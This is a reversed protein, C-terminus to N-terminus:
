NALVPALEANLHNLYEAEMLDVGASAEEQTFPKDPNKPMIPVAWIIYDQMAVKFVCLSGHNEFGVNTSYFEEDSLGLLNFRIIGICIRAIGTM